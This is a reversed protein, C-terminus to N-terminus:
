LALILGIFLVFIGIGISTFAVEAIGSDPLEEVTTLDSATYATPTNTSTSTSGSDGDDNSTPIPTSTTTPTSTASNGGIGGNSDAETPSTTVTPEEEVTTPTPTASPSTITLTLPTTGVLMNRGEEQTTDGEEVAGVLTEETYSIMASGAQKAKFRMVALTGIGQSLNTDFDAWLVYSLEGQESDFSPDFGGESDFYNGSTVELLELVGSTFSIRLEVASIQNEAPSIEATVIFEQGVEPSSTQTNFSLTTAPAAKERYETSQQILYVGVGVGALMVLVVLMVIIKRLV